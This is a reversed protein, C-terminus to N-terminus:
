AKAKKALEVMIERAQEPSELEKDYNLRYLKKNLILDVGYQDLGAMWYNSDDSVELGMLNTLYDKINHKHDDNMHDVIRPESEFNFINRSQVEETELWFIKGFGGIYRLRVPEIRYFHFDHTKFYEKSEPFYSTYRRKIAEDDEVKVANGIYTLRGKAQKNTNTNEEVITLSVKSNAEINKTHQAISSILLNPRFNEDLCYPTVSGFPYGEVALSITSLIGNGQGALLNFAAQVKENPSNEM